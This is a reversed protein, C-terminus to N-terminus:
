DTDGIADGDKDEDGPSRNTPPAPPFKATLHDLGAALLAGTQPDVWEQRVLWKLGRGLAAPSVSSIRRDHKTLALTISAYYMLMVLGTPLPNDPDNRCSKAFSKVLRLLELPPNPHHLLEGLTTLPHLPPQAVRLRHEVEASLSGLGWRLPAGLQHRLMDRLEATSWEQRNPDHTELLVSLGAASAVSALSATLPEGARGPPVLGTGSADM